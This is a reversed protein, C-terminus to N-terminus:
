RVVEIRDLQWISRAYITENQYAPTSDYPYVVWLPGKERLSMPRGNMLYAVIPGGEVADAVPIEVTYDNIATARLVTGEAGVTDLLDTLSVGVFTTAGDTWVTTTAFESPDLAELMARDFLAQGEANTVTIAGTVALVVDGSPAPLDASASTAFLSTIAALFANRFSTTM